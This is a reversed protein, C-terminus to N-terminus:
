GAGESTSPKLAIVQEVAGSTRAWRALEDKLAGAGGGTLEYFRARRGNESVGWSSRVFGKRKLRQLAPYVSGQNVCFVGDSVDELREALGWGHNPGLELLKLLLLDLTGLLVDAKADGM